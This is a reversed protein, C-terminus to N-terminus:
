REAGELEFADRPVRLAELAGPRRVFAPLLSRVTLRRACMEDFARVDADRTRPCLLHGYPLKKMDYGKM